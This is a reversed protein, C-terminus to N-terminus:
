KFLRWLAIVANLQMRYMPALCWHVLALQLNSLLVLDAIVGVAASMGLFLGASGVTLVALYPLVSGYVSGFRAWAQLAQWSLAGFAATLEDNLKLGIPQSILLVISTRLVHNTLFFFLSSVASAVSQFFFLLLLSFLLGLTHDLLLSTLPSAIRHQAIHLDMSSYLPLKPKKLSNRASNPIEHPFHNLNAPDTPFCPDQNLSTEPPGSASSLSAKLSAGKVPQTSPDPPNSRTAAAPGSVEAAAAAAAATKDEAAAAVHGDSVMVGGEVFVGENSFCSASQLAARLSAILRQRRIMCQWTASNSKLAATAARGSSTVLSITVVGAEQLMLLLAVPAAAIQTAVALSLRGVHGVSDLAASDEGEEVIGGELIVEKYEGGKVGLVTGWLADREKVTAVSGEAGVLGEVGKAQKVSERVPPGLLQQHLSDPGTAVQGPEAKVQGLGGQSLEGQSVGPQAPTKGPIGQMSERAFEGASKVGIASNIDSASNVHILSPLGEAESPATSASSDAAKSPKPTAKGLFFMRSRFGQLWRIAAGASVYGRSKARQTQREVARCECIRAVQSEADYGRSKARQTRPPEIHGSTAWFSRLWVGVRGTESTSTTVADNAGNAASKESGKGGPVGVGEEDLGESGDSGDEVGGRVVSMWRRCDAVYFHGPFTPQDYFVVQASVPHSASAMDAPEGAPEGAAAEPVPKSGRDSLGAESAESVSEGAAGTAKKSAVGPIGSGSCVPPPSLMCRSVDQHYPFHLAQLPSTYLSSSLATYGPLFSFLIFLPPQQFARM